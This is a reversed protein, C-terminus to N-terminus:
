EEPVPNVTFGVYHATALGTPTRRCIGSVETM